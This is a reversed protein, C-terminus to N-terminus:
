AKAMSIPTAANTVQNMNEPGCQHRAPRDEGDDGEQREGARKEDGHQAVVFGPTRLARQTASHVVSIVNAIESMRIQRKSGVV